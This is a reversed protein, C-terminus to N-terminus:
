GTGFEYLWLRAAHWLWLGAWGASLCFVAAAQTEARPRAARRADRDARRQARLHPHDQQQPPLPRPPPRLLTGLSQPPRPHRPHPNLHTKRHVHEPPRPHQGQSLPSNPQSHNSLPSKFSNSPRLQLKHGSSENLHIQYADPPDHVPSITAFTILTPFNPNLAEFPQIHFV